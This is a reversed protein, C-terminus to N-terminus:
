VRNEEYLSFPNGDPDEFHIVRKSSGIDVIESTFKVGKSKLSEIAEELNEVLFSIETGKGISDETLHLGIYTNSGPVSVETWFASTYGMEMNLVSTYFQKAKEMDSVYIVLHHIQKIM